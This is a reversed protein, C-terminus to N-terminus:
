RPIVPLDVYSSGDHALRITPPAGALPVFHGRDAGAVAIRLRRGRHFLYSTPLLGFTLTAARGPALAVADRRRFSHYPVPTNYPADNMERDIARLEGETVYAVRGTADVEELYAFLEADAATATISLTIEPDGTVEMDRDLPPSTYTLLTRDASSRDPYDVFRESTVTNWRSSPGTTASTDVTYLDAGASVSPRLEDLSNGPQLYWRHTETEPLPWSYASKWREEGMTYYHIPADSEIGNRIGKLQYDFFHLLEGTQDFSSRLAGLVPTFAFRGDHNWPGLILRSGPTVVTRFRVIASRQLAGDYWGSASYIAAGSARISAANTFPSVDDLTWGASTRDDRFTVNTLRGDTAFASSRIGGPFVMDAYTDFPSFLPAIAKVAPHQTTLMLEATSGAYSSGMVGVTDNSWPQHVAWEVLDYADHADVPGLETVRSGAVTTDGPAHASLYVYGRTVFAAIRPDIASSSDLAAPSRPTPLLLPAARSRESRRKSVEVITALRTGVAIGQPLYLDVPLTTGNRMPVLASSRGVGAYTAARLDSLGAGRGGRWPASDPAPTTPLPSAAVPQAAPARAPAPAVRPRGSSCATLALATVTAVGTFTRKMIRQSVYGSPQDACLPIDCGDDRM